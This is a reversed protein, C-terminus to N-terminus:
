RWFVFFAYGNLTISNETEKFYGVFGLINIIYNGDLEITSADIVSDVLLSNSAVSIGEISIVDGAQFPHPNIFLIRTKGSVTTIQSILRKDPTDSDFKVWVTFALSDEM